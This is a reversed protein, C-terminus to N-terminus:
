KSDDAYDHIAQKVKNLDVQLVKSIQEPKAGLEHMELIDLLLEKMYAM